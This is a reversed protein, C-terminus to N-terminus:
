RRTRKIMQMTAQDRLFTLGGALQGFPSAPFSKNILRSVLQEFPRDHDVPADILLGYSGARAQHAPFPLPDSGPLVRRGATDVKAFMRPTPWFWPRGGNDGLFLQHADPSALFAALIRGRRGVWKGFGWPVVPLAQAELALRFAERLPTGDPILEDSGLALLELGEVTQIQRGATVMVQQGATSALTLTRRDPHREAAWGAPPDEALARFAFDRATETFLLWPLVAGAVRAHEAAAQLFGGRDFCPYLHVHADVLVRQVMGAPAAGLRNENREDATTARDSM